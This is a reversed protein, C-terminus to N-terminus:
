GSPTGPEEVLQCTLEKWGSERRTNFFLTRANFYFRIRYNLTKMARALAVVSWTELDRGYLPEVDRDFRWECRRSGIGTAAIKTTAVTAQFRFSLAAESTLGLKLAGFSMGTDIVPVDGKPAQALGTPSFQGVFAGGAGVKGHVTYDFSPILSVVCCTRDGTMYEVEIGVSTPEAFGARRAISVRHPVLWVDFRDLLIRAEQSDVKAGARTQLDRFRMGMPQDNVTAFFGGEDIEDGFDIDAELEETLPLTIDFDHLTM